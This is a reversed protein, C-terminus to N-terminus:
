RRSLLELNEGCLLRVVAETKRKASFRGRDGCYSTNAMTLVGAFSVIDRRHTPGVRALDPKAASASVADTCQMLILLDRGARREL